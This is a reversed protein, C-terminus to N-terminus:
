ERATLSAAAWIGLDDGDFHLTAQPTAKLLDRPAFLLGSPHAAVWAALTDGDPLVTVPRHLRGAFNMEASYRMGTVALDGEAAGSLAKALRHSDYTVFFGTGALAGQLVLAVGLGLALHGPVLPLGIALAALALLCLGAILVPTLGIDPPLVSGARGGTARLAALVLVALGAGLTLWPAASLHGSPRSEEWLSRAFILAIAPLEPLLYHAQKSAVLSFIALGSLAWILCLRVSRDAATRRRLGRWLQWSWGFPFILVPLLAILFWVPRDHAMGGAVRAASQRWILEYRFTADATLLAPVLWLAVAALCTALALALGRAGDRVSPPRPAWVRMLALPVVLHLFIVPGKAYLGFALVLGLGAWVRSRVDGSGIAWLCGIGALVAVTLMADFMTASGYLLFASFGALAAAARTGAGSLDPWFRAALRATLVVAAVAFAPGVLRGALESVGTVAWVLNILWFLLPPKDAYPAFNRTLHFPDGSLHMEWAVALYRTEDIPLLPRVLVSLVLAVAFVLSVRFLSLSPM